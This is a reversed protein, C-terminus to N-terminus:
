QSLDHREFFGATTHKGGAEGHARLDVALVNYGMALFTPAWAIGGIKSDAYGHVLVACRDSKSSAPLWWATIKLTGGAAEDRVTFSEDEYSLGLDEPGLRKLTWLAQFAVMRPPSLLFRAMMLCTVAVLAVGTLLLVLLLILAHGLM